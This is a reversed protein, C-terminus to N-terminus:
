FRVRDEVENAFSAAWADFRSRITDINEAWWISDFRLSSDSMNQTPLHDKAAGSVRGQASKRVPGYPIHKAVDAMGQTSTAFKIFSKANDLNRSGKPIALFEIEWVQGDWVINMPANDEVIPRFLRGNWAASMSVAGSRLLAAPEAGGTWWVISERIRDLETFASLLGEPTSLKEYVESAPVGTAMLAWEMTGRPDQRLGRKGPFKKVDFFDAITTPPNDSFRQTDYAYVTAWVYVGVGCENALAGDIFDDSSNPLSAHSIKELLGEECAQILDSYEMDVVDWKVNTTNVQDRLEGLGGGYYVMETHEGENAKEWPLLWAQMHARALDGGWNVLTLDSHAQVNVSILGILILATCRKSFLFLSRTIM